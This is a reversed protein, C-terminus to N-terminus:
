ILKLMNEVCEDAEKESLTETDKEADIKKQSFGSGLVTSTIGKETWDAIEKDIAAGFAESDLGDDGVFKEHDVHLKVKEHLNEPLDSESLKTTWITSAAAVLANQAQIAAEKEYLLNKKESAALKENIGCLDTSLKKTIELHDVSLKDVAEKVAGAVIGEVFKTYAEPQTEAFKNIDFEMLKEKKNIKAQVSADYQSGGLKSSDELVKYEIEIDKEAFAKSETDSDYGFTCVSSEKLACKRWITGPGKFTYGNVEATEDKEVEEIESPVAYISAQYPFGKKSNRIFQYAEKTELLTIDEMHLTNEIISPKISFGIKKDTMHDELIPYVAKPFEIGKTDIALDGWFWHNRIVKGSYALMTMGEPKEVDEGIFIPHLPESLCLAGKNVKKNVQSMKEGKFKSNAIRIAKADCDKGGEKKCSALVSNAIKVWKKKQEPTLGKKHSDVDSVKWPM